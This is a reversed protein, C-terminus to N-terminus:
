RERYQDTCANSLRDLVVVLFTGYTTWGASNETSRVNLFVPLM